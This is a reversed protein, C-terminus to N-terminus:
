REQGDNTRNDDDVPLKQKVPLKPQGIPCGLYKKTTSKGVREYNRSDRTRRALVEQGPGTFRGRVRREEFKTTRSLIFTEAQVWSFLEPFGWQRTM